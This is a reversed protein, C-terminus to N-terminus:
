HRESRRRLDVIEILVRDLKNAILVADSVSTDRLLALAKAVAAEAAGLKRVDRHSPRSLDPAPLMKPPAGRARFRHRVNQPVDRLASQIAQPEGQFMMNTADRWQTTTTPTADSPTVVDPPPKRWRTM